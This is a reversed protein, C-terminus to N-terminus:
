QPPETLPAAPVPIWHTIHCGKHDKLHTLGGTENNSTFWGPVDNYKGWWCDTVRQGSSYWLDVRTGDHPATEIPRWIAIGCTCLAAPWGM